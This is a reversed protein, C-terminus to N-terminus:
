AVTIKGSMGVGGKGGHAACYYAYTGPTFTHKFSGTPTVEGSTFSGDDAVVNHGGGTWTFTVEGAPAALSAPSFTNGAVTVANGATPSAPAAPTDKKSSCAVGAFALLAIFFITRVKM